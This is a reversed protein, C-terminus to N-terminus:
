ARVETPTLRALLGVIAHKAAELTSRNSRIEDDTIEGDELACSLALAARLIHGERQRDTMENHQRVGILADATGTFRGNWAQKAFYYATAPMEATGDVYKAAQDESKGLIRGLDAFTLRDEHKIKGLDDGLASLIASASVPRRHGHITPDAM